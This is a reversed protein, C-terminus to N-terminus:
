FKAISFLGCGFAKGPGIGNAIATRLEAIGTVVLVGEFVCTDFTLRRDLPARDHLVGGIDARTDFLDRGAPDLRVQLLSFGSREGQRKLWAIREEERRIAVRKGIRKGDERQRWWKAGEPELRRVIGTREIEPIEEREKWEGRTTLERLDPGELARAHVRRTPNARLRFRCRGSEIIDNLQQDIDIPGDVDTLAPTEFAWSPAAASQVLVQPSADRPLEVRFLVGSEARAQDSEAQGFGGMVARHLTRCDALWNWTDRHRPNLMLRSLYM